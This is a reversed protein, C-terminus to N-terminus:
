SNAEKLRILYDRFFAKVKRMHVHKYPFLDEPDMAHVVMCHDAEFILLEGDATEACDICLYDLQCREHIAALAERHRESMFLYRPDPAISFPPHQLGFFPAYMSPTNVRELMGGPPPCPKVQDPTVRLNDDSLCSPTLTLGLM